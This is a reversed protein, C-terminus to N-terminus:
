APLLDELGSGGLAPGTEVTFGNPSKLLNFVRNQDDGPEYTRPGKLIVLRGFPQSQMKTIFKAVARRGLEFCACSQDVCFRASIVNNHDFGDIDAGDLLESKHVLGSIQYYARSM